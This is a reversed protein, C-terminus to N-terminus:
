TIADNIQSEKKFLEVWIIAEPPHEIKTLVGLYPNQEKIVLNFAVGLVSCPYWDVRKVNEDRM